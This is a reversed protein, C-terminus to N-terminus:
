SRWGDLTPGAGSRCECRPPGSPGRHAHTQRRQIAAVCFRRPQGLVGRLEPPTRRGPSGLRLATGGAGNFSNELCLLRVSPKGAGPSIVAALEHADMEGYRNGHLLIPSAGATVLASTKYAHIRPECVVPDGPSTFLRIALLNGMMGSPVFLAAEKGMREAAMEQLRNVTPDDGPALADDGLPARCMAEYMEPTPRTVTDSRLDIM